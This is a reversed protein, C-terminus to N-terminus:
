ENLQSLKRASFSFIFIIALSIGMTFNRNSIINLDTILNGLYFLFTISLSVEIGKLIGKQISPLELREKVLIVLYLVLLLVVIIVGSDM